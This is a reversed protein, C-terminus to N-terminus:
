KKEINLHFFTRGFYEDYYSVIEESTYDLGILHSRVFRQYRNKDGTIDKSSVRYHIEAKKPNFLKLVPKMAHILSERDFVWMSPHIYACFEVFNSTSGVPRPTVHLAVYGTGGTLFVGTYGPPDFDHDFVFPTDTSLLIDDFCDELDYLAEKERNKPNCLAQVFNRDCNYFACALYEEQQSNVMLKLKRDSRTLKLSHQSYRTIVEERLHQIMKAMDKRYLNAIFMKGEPIDIPAQIDIIYRSYCDVPVKFCQKRLSDRDSIKLDKLLPTPAFYIFSVLEPYDCADLFTSLV